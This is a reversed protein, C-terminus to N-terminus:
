VMACRSVGEKGEGWQLLLTALRLRLRERVEAYEVVVQDRPELRQALDLEIKVPATLLRLRSKRLLQAVHPLLEVAPPLLDVLELRADLHVRVGLDRPAALEALLLALELSNLHPERVTGDWGM